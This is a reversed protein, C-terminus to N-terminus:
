THNAKSSQLLSGGDLASNPQYLFLTYILPLGSAIVEIAAVITLFGVMLADCNKRYFARSIVTILLITLLIALSWPELAPSLILHFSLPLLEAYTLKHSGLVSLARAAVLCKNPADIQHM